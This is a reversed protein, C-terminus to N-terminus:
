ERCDIRNQDALEECSRDAELLGESADLMELMDNMLMSAFNQRREQYSEM